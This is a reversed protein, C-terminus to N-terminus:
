AADVRDVEHSSDVRGSGKRRDIILLGKLAEALVEAAWASRDMGRLSAAASWKAHLDVDVVVTAKVTKSPHTAVGKRGRAKNTAVAIRRDQDVLAPV